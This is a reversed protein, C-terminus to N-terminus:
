QEARFFWRRKMATNMKWVKPSSFWRLKKVWKECFEELIPDVETDIKFITDASSTRSVESMGGLKHSRM